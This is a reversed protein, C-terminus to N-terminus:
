SRKTCTFDRTMDDIDQVIKEQSDTIGYERQFYLAAEPVSIPRLDELLTPGPLLRFRQSLQGIHEGM